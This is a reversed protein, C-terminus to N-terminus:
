VYIGEDIQVLMEEIGRAGSETTLLSMLSRDRSGVQRLWKLAKKRDGFLEEAHSLVRAFRVARDSEECSLTRDAEEARYTASIYLRIEESALGFEHLRHLIGSSLGQEVLEALERWYAYEVGVLGRFIERSPCSDKTAM